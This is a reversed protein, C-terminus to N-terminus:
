LNTFTLLVRAVIHVEEKKYVLHSFEPNISIFTDEEKKYRKVWMKNEYYVLYIKEDSLVKQSLDAVIVARDNILPQMSKGDVLLALLSKENFESNILHKSFVLEKVKNEDFIDTYELTINEM